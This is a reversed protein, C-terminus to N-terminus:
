LLTSPRILFDPHAALFAAAIALAAEDNLRRAAIQLGV